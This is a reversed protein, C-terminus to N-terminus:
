DFEDYPSSDTMAYDFCIAEGAAIDRLAVLTVQGRVGANPECSHNVYDAPELDEHPVLYLGEEIQLSHTQLATPLHQFEAEATVRGGWVVLVEDVAISQTAVIGYGGMEVSSVVGLRPNMHHLNPQTHIAHIVM